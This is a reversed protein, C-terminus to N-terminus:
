VVGVISLVALSVSAMVVHLVVEDTVTLAFACNIAVIDAAVSLADLKLHMADEYPRVYRLIPVYLILLWAAVWGDAPNRLLVVIVKLLGKRVFLVSPWYWSRPRFGQLLFSFLQKRELKHKPRFRIHMAYGGFFGLPVGILLLVAVAVAVRRFIIYSPDDCSITMDVALLSETRGDALTISTCELMRLSYAVATPYMFFLVVQLSTTALFTFESRRLVRDGKRAKDSGFSTNAAHPDDPKDDDESSPVVEQMAAMNDHEFTMGTKEDIFARIDTEDRIGRRRAELRLKQRRRHLTKNQWQEQMNSLATAGRRTFSLRLFEPHIFLIVWAVGAAFLAIFPATAFVAFKALFNSGDSRMVCDAFSIDLVRLDAIVGVWAIFEDFFTPYPAEIEGVSVATQMHTVLLQLVVVAGSSVRWNQASLVIFIILFGFAIILMTVFLGIRTKAGYCEVCNNGISKAYHDECIGCRPGAYGVACSATSNGGVCAHPPTCQYVEWSNPGARWYGPELILENSPGGACSAHQMCTTCLYAGFDRYTGAPCSPLMLDTMVQVTGTPTTVWIVFAYAFGGRANIRDIPDDFSCTGALCTATFNKTEQPEGLSHLLHQSVDEDHLYEVVSAQALTGTSQSGLRNGAVDLLDVVPKRGLRGSEEVTTSPQQVVRLRYLPGQTVEVICNVAWHLPASSFVYRATFVLNASTALPLTVALGSFALEGTGSLAELSMRSPEMVLSANVEMAASVIVNASFTSGVENGAADVFVVTLRPLPVQRDAVLKLTTIQKRGSDVLIMGAAEGVLVLVKPSGTFVTGDLAIDIHGRWADKSATLPPCVITDSSANYVGPLDLYLVDGDRLFSGAPPAPPHAEPAPTPGATVHQLTVSRTAALGLTRSASRSPTLTGESESLSVSASVSSTPKKSLSPTVTRSHSLQSPPAIMPPPAGPATAITTSYRCAIFASDFFGLGRMTIAQPSLYHQQSPSADSISPPDYRELVVKNITYIDGYMSVSVSDSECEGAVTRPATVEVKTSSLVKATVVVGGINALAGADDGDASFGRGIITLTTNGRRDAFPPVVSTVDYVIYRRVAIGQAKRQLIAVNRAEEAISIASARRDESTSSDLAQSGLVEFETATCLVKIFYATTQQNVVVYVVESPRDFAMAVISHGVSPAEASPSAWNSMTGTRLTRLIRPQSARQIAIVVWQGAIVAGAVSTCTGTQGADINRMPQFVSPGSALNVLSVTYAVCTNLDDVGFVVLRDRPFPDYILVSADALTFPLSTSTSLSQAFGNEFTFNSFCTIDFYRNVLGRTIANSVCLTPLGGAELLDDRAIASRAYPVSGSVNRYFFRANAFVRLAGPNYGGVLESRNDPGGVVPLNAVQAIVNFADHYETGPAVCADLLFVRGRSRWMAVPSAGCPLLAKAPSFYTVTPIRQTADILQGIVTGGTWLTGNDIIRTSPTTGNVGPLFKSRLVNTGRSYTLLTSQQAAFYNAASPPVSITFSPLQTSYVSRQTCDTGFYGDACDTCLSGAWYGAVADADCVCAGTLRVCYGHSCSCVESCQEGWTERSCDTCQTGGWKSECVCQGTALNCRSNARQARCSEDTCDCAPGVYNDTCACIGTSRDGYGCLGHGSCLDGSPGYGCQRECGAGGRDPHCVCTTGNTVGNLPNCRTECTPGSLGSKCDACGIGDFFTNCQCEGLDNCSGTTNLACDCKYACGTSLGVYGTHCACTATGTTGDDCIGHGYCIEGAASRPCSATCNRGAMGAVCRCHGDMLCTGNGNNCPVFEGPKAPDPTNGDCELECSDGVYGGPCSCKGTGSRGSSCTGRVCNCVNECSPGWLAPVNPPCNQLCELKDLECWTGCGTAFTCTCKGNSCTGLLSCVEMQGSINRLPCLTTCNDSEYEKQCAACPGQFQAPAGVLTRWHGTAPSSDCVCAGATDCTGHGSCVHGAANVPCVIQCGDGRYGPPCDCTKTLGNCWGIGSCNNQPCGSCPGGVCDSTPDPTDCLAGTFFVDCLCVGSLSDCTGHGTCPNSPSPLCATCNSGYYGPACRECRTGTFRPDCVCTGNGFRGSVCRGNVTCQCAGDCKEGYFGAACESCDDGSWVGQGQTGNYCTCRGSGLVGDDCVGHSSCPSCQGGPCVRLCGEGWYHAQCEVCAEGLKRGGVWFGRSFDSYCRCLPLLDV